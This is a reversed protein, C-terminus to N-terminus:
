GNDHQEEHRLTNRLVWINGILFLCGVGFLSIGLWRAQREAAVFGALAVEKDHLIYIALKQGNALHAASRSIYYQTDDKEDNWPDTRTVPVKTPATQNPAPAAAPSMAFAEVFFEHEPRELDIRPLTIAANNQRVGEAVEGHYFAQGRENAVIVKRQFAQTGFRAFSENFERYDIQAALVGVPSADAQPPIICSTSVVWLEKSRDASDRRYPQSLLVVHGRDRRASLLKEGDHGVGEGGAATRGAPADEMGSFWERGAFNTGEPPLDPEINGSPMRGLTLRVRGEVDAVTWSRVRLGSHTQYLAQLKEQLRARSDEDGRGRLLEPWQPHQAEQRVVRMRENFRSEIETAVSRAIVQNDGVVQAAWKGQFEQLALMGGFIVVLGAALLTLAPALAGLILLPRRRRRWECREIQALLEAADKPRKGADVELCREILAAAEPTVGPLGRHAEPSECKELHEAYQELRDRVESGSHSRENMQEALQPSYRPKKGTLM